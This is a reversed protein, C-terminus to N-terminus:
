AHNFELEFCPRIEGVLLGRQNTNTRSGFRPMAAIEDQSLV